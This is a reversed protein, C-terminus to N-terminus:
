RRRWLCDDHIGLAAQASAIERRFRIADQPYGKTGRLGPCHQQWFTNFAQMSAERLYKSVMSALAVPLHREARTEFRFERGGVRYISRARSEERVTVMAGQLQESLAGAYRNRGGHKDCLVLSRPSQDVTLLGCALALTADTLVAGKSGAADTLRNLRPESVVDSRVALLRVHARQMDTTLRQVAAEVDEAPVSLPLPADVESYWPASYEDEAPHRWRTLLGRLESITQPRMGIAGLFALVSRELQTIGKGPQYVQKSDGVHLRGDMPGSSSIVDSLLEWLQDSGVGDPADWHTATVVLPGLNPGYGAEDTGILHQTSSM